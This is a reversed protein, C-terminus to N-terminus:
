VLNEQIAYHILQANNEFNMKEMARTRYTSITKVSLALEDAISSITKGSALLRIVQFERDSLSEHRPRDASDTMEFALKEALSTTIYRGGVAVRRIAVVLEEPASEKTLYGAAGSKLARLAYQDEPHVSLILVPLDPDDSKIQKLVELGGRGPLSIDLLIVTYSNEWIKELAEQGTGAEDAVIMDPTENIIQKLGARVVSHDDIILVEVM